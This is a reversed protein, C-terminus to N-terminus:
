LESLLCGDDNGTSYGGLLFSLYDSHDLLLVFSLSRQGNPIARIVHVHNSSRMYSYAYTAELPLLCRSRTVVRYPLELMQLNQEEDM